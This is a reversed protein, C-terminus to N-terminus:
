SSATGGSRPWPEARGERLGRLLSDAAASWRLDPALCRQHAARAFDRYVAEDRYLRELATAVQAPAVEGMLPPSYETRVRRVPGLRLTSEGWLERLAPHDPLLQPAGTAAHEFSVLGFGEGV